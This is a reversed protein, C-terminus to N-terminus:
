GVLRMALRTWTPTSLVIWILPLDEALLLLGGSVFAPHLRRHRWTDWAVCAYLLLLDLGFLGGPGGNKLFSLASAHEFSIRALGPGVMSLCSLLMLRKHYDPRRRLLLAACVLIAFVLLAFLLFGMFMLPPPGDAHSQHVARAAWRLAVTTGVVVMLVALVAGFVGLQRHLGIRHSAVLYTQTFFLLFWSTMLGGHFHLLVPLAPTDFLLKLYYTQAFGVFVITFAAAGAWAYYRHASPRVRTPAVSARRLANHPISM